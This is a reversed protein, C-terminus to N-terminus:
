RRGSPFCAAHCRSLLGAARPRQSTVDVAERGRCTPRCTDLLSPEQELKENSSLEDLLTRRM